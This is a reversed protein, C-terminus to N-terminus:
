PQVGKRAHAVVGAYGHAATLLADRLSAISDAYITFQMLAPLKGRASRPRTVLVCVAAQDPTRVAVNTEIVHRRADDEAVLGAPLGAFRRYSEVANFVRLLTLAEDLSVSTRGNLNPTAWRLDGAVARASQLVTRAAWAAAADDLLAFRARFASAYRRAFSSDAHATMAAALIEYQVYLARAPASTDHQMQRLTVLTGAADAYRGLLMELRFRNDLYRARSTDRYEALVQAALRPMSTALAASDALEAASLSFQQAPVVGPWLSACAAVLVVLRGLQEYRTPM